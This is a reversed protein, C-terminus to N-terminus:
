CKGYRSLGFYMFDVIHHVSDYKSLRFFNNLPISLTMSPIPKVLEISMEIMNTGCTTCTYLVLSVCAM